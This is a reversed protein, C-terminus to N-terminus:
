VKDQRRSLCMVTPSEGPEVKILGRPQRVNRTWRVEGLQFVVNAEGLEKAFEEWEDALDLLKQHREADVTQEAVERLEAIHGRWEQADSM